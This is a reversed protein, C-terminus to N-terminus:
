ARARATAWLWRNHELPRWEPWISRWRANPVTRLQYGLSSLLDACDQELTASHTEVVLPPLHGLITRAARIVELEAGDVDIKVFGPREREADPMDACFADAVVTVRERLRPNLELNARLHDVAQPDPEFAYVHGGRALAAYLLTTVGDGAGIDYVASDPSICSRYIGNLESEYLGFERQLDHRRNLLAVTGRGPGGKITRAKTEDRVLLPKILLKLRHQAHMLSTSPMPNM